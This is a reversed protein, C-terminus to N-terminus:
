HARVRRPHSSPEVAAVATVAAGTPPPLSNKLVSGTASASEPKRGGGSVLVSVTGRSWARLRTGDAGTTDLV